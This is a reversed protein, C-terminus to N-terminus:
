ESAVIRKLSAGSKFRPIKKEEIVIVDRNLVGKMERGPRIQSSFTGFGTLQVQEDDRLAEAIIDLTANIVLKSDAASVNTRQSVKKVLETTKM